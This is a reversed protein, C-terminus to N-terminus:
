LEKIAAPYYEKFFSEFDPYISRNNKYVNLISILKEPEKYLFNQIIVNKYQTQIDEDAAVEDYDLICVYAAINSFFNQKEYESYKYTIQNETIIRNLIENYTASVIDWYKTNYSFLVAYSLYLAPTSGYDYSVYAPVYNQVIVKNNEQIITPIFCYAATMTSAFFEFEVTTNKAFYFDSIWKTIQPNAKYYEMVYIAQGRLKSNYYSWIKEFNSVTIFDNMEAIFSKLNINKWYILMESPLEKESVTISTFDDSIYRSIKLIEAVPVKKPDYAKKLAKVFPHSKQNEMMKDVGDVFESFTSNYVSYSLPECEGLRLGILLLEIKPDVKITINEHTFVVPQLNVPTLAKKNSCSICNFLATFLAILTLLCILIKKM